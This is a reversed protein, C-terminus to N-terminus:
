SPAMIKKETKIRYTSIYYNERDFKLKFTSELEAMFEKLNRLNVKTKLTYKKRRYKHVILEDEYSNFCGYIEIPYYKKIGKPNQQISELRISWDKEFLPHIRVRLNIQMYEDNENEPIENTFDLDIYWNHDSPIKIDNEKAWIYSELDEELSIYYNNIEQKIEEFKSNEVYSFIRRFTYLDPHKSNLLKKALEIVFEEAKNNNSITFTSIIYWYGGYIGSYANPTFELPYEVEKLTEVFLEILLTNKAFKELRYIDKKSRSAVFYIYSNVKDFFKIIEKKDTDSVKKLKAELSNSIKEEFKTIESM